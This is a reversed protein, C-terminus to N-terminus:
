LGDLVVVDYLCSPPLHCHPMRAARVTFLALRLFFFWALELLGGEHHLFDDADDDVFSSLSM